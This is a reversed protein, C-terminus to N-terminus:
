DLVVPNINTLRDGAEAGHCHCPTLSPALLLSNQQRSCGWCTAKPLHTEREPPYLSQPLYHIGSHTHHFCPGRFHSFPSLCVSTLHALSCACPTHIQSAPQSSPPPLSFLCSFNFLPKPSSHLLTWYALMFISTWIWLMWKFMCACPNIDTAM